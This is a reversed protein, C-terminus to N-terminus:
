GIPSLKLGSIHEFHKRNLTALTCRNEMAIAAIFIDRIDILRGKARLQKYIVAAIRACRESLSIVNCRSILRDVEELSRERLSLEFVSITTIFLECDSYEKLLADGAQTGNLIEIAVDSDLCVKQEM